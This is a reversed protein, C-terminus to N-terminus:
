IKVQYLEELNTQQARRYRQMHLFFRFMVGNNQVLYSRGDLIMLGWEREQLFNMM